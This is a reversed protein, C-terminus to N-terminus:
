SREADPCLAHAPGFRDARSSYSIVTRRLGRVLVVTSSSSVSPDRVVVAVLGSVTDTVLGEPAVGVEV